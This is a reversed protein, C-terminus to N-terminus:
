ENGDQRLKDDLFVRPCDLDINCEECVKVVIKDKAM